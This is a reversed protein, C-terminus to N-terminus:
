RSRVERDEAATASGATAATAEARRAYAPTHGARRLSAGLYRLALNEELEAGVLLVKM